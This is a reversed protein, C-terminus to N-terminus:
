SGMVRVNKAINKRWVELGEVTIVSRGRDTILSLIASPMVSDVHKSIQIQSPQLETVAKM